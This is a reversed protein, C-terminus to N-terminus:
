VLVTLTLFCVSRTCVVSSPACGHWCVKAPISQFAQATGYCSIFSVGLSCPHCCPTVAPAKWRQVQSPIHSLSLFSEPSLCSPVMFHCVGASVFNTSSSPCPWGLVLRSGPPVTTDGVGHGLSPVSGGSGSTDCFLLLQIESPNRFNLQEHM